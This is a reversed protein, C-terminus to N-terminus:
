EPILKSGSLYEYLVQVKNVSPDDIEESAFKRLWYFPLGTDVSIEPLTKQRQPRKMLMLTMRLLSGM